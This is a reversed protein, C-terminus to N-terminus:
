GREIDQELHRAAVICKRGLMIASAASIISGLKDKASSHQSPMGIGAWFNQRLRFPIPSV